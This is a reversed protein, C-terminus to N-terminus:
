GPADVFDHMALGGDGRVGDQAQALIEADGGLKPEIQLDPMIQLRRFSGSFEKGANMGAGGQNGGSYVRRTMSRLHAM